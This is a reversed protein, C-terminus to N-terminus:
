PSPEDRLSARIAELRALEARERGIKYRLYVAVGILFAVGFALRTPVALWTGALPDKTTAIFYPLWVALGLSLVFFVVGGLRAVRLDARKRRVALEVYASVEGAAAAWTGRRAHLTYATAVVFVVSVFAAMPWLHDVRSSLAGYAVIGFGYAGLEIALKGRALWTDRTARAVLKSVDPGIPESKFDSAWVDWDDDHKM